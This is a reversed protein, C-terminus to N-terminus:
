AATGGYKSVLASLEARLAQTSSKARQEVSSENWHVNGCRWGLFEVLDVCDLAIRPLGSVELSWSLPLFHIFQNRLANLKKVSWDHSNGPRFPVSHIFQRIRPGKIKAYLRLFSDLKEQPPPQKAHYARLWEAAVRDPLVALGDSGRLAIVMFGQLANHLALVVWRWQYVDNAVRAASEGATELSATAEVQEDTRLYIAM